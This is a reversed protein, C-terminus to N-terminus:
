FHLNWPGQSQLQHTQSSGWFRCTLLCMGWEWAGWSALAQPDRPQGSLCLQSCLSAACPCAQDVGEPSSGVPQLKLGAETQIRGLTHGQTPPKVERFRADGDTFHPHALAGHQRPM